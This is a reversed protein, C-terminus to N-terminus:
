HSWSFETSNTLTWFLDEILRSRQNVPTNKFKLLFHNLERESPLRTLTALYASEIADQHDETIM